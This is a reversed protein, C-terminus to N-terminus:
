NQNVDQVEFAALTAINNSKLDLVNLNINIEHITDDVLIQLDNKSLSEPVM